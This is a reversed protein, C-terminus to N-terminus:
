GKKFAAIEKSLGTVFKEADGANMFAFDTLEKKAGTKPNYLFLATGYAQFEEATEKNEADDVNVLTFPIGDFKALTQKSLEEIKMCTMCRHESHFQILAVEANATNVTLQPTQAKGSCASFLVVVLASLSFLIIKIKM